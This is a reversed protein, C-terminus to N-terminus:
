YIEVTILYEGVCFAPNDADNRIIGIGLPISHTGRETLASMDATVSIRSSNIFSLVAPRGLLRIQISDERIRYEFNPPPVTNFNNNQRTSVNILKSEIDIFKIEVDAAHVSSTVGDPFIIPMTVTTDGTYRKEDIVGINYEHISNIFDPPGTILITEPVITINTNGANYYGHRYSVTLPAEKSMTVPVFVEVTTADRTSIYQNRVEEGDKNILIFRETVTVPREVAGLSLNVRAHSLTKLIGEPGRVTVSAASLGLEGIEVDPDKVMQVIRAEVPITVSSERDIYLLTSSQSQDAVEVYDMHKIEIPLSQEGAQSVGALDIFAEIDQVRVRNLHASRGELTVDIYLDKEVIISYGFNDRMEALNEFRVPVSAFRRQTVQSEFGVVWFWILVATLVSIIKLFFDSKTKKPKTENM